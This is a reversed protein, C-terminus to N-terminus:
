ATLGLDSLKKTLTKKNDGWGVKATLVGDIVEVSWTHCNDHTNGSDCLNEIKTGSGNDYAVYWKTRGYSHGDEADRQMIAVDKRGAPFIPGRTMDFTSSINPGANTALTKALESNLENM